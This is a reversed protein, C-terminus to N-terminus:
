LYENFIKNLKLYLENCKTLLLEDYSLDIKKSSISFKHNRDIQLNLKNVLDFLYNKNECILDYSIVYLDTMNLNNKYLYEYYLLWQELWYNLDLSNKYSIPENWSKHNKGFEYHGLYNMYNLIFKNESQLKLFNLHQSMLSYSHQIPNRFPILFIANKFVSKITSLRKINNNNKSLYNKKNYKKLILSIYNKLNKRIESEDFTKFFVEDFAEPSDIRYKIGDNHARKFIINKQDPFFLKSLNPSMVFPMDKFTLSAYLNSKYFGELLTTTGSRALGCIFLHRNDVIDKNIAYFLNELQFLSKKILNNGLCLDHLLKQLFNYNIQM